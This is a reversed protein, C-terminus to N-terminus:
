QLIERLPPRPARVECRRRRLKLVEVGTLPLLALAIVILTARAGLSVTAFATHAFPLFVVAAVVAVSAVVSADLWRNPQLRWAAAISSRLGYVLALESFALTAFAM